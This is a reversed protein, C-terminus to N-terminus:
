AIEVLRGAVDAVLAAGVAAAVDDAGLVALV